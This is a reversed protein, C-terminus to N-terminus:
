NSLYRPHRINRQNSDPVFLVPTMQKPTFLMFLIVIILIVLLISKYDM